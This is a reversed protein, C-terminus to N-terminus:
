SVKKGRKIVNGNLDHVTLYDENYKRDKIGIKDLLDNAKKRASLWFEDENLCEWRWVESPINDTETKFDLLEQKLSPRILRNRFITDFCVPTFAYDIESELEFLPDFSPEILDELEKRNFSFLTLANVLNSLYFDVYKDYENEKM